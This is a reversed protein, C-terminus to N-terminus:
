ETFGRDKMQEAKVFMGMGTKLLRFGIKKYFNEKGPNSYLIINCNSIKEMTSELILKGIGKSQYEPLLAVDYIAAQRVGDSIARAFGVLKENDFAFVTVYSNEFAMKCIEPDASSLGAIKLISSVLEWNIDRCDYKIKINM